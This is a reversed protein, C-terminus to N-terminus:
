TVEERFVNVPIRSPRRGALYEREKVTMGGFIGVWIGPLQLSWELCLPQVECTRCIARAREITKHNAGQTPFFVDTM